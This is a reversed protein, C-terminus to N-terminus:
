ACLLQARELAEALMSLTKPWDQKNIEVKITTLNTYYAAETERQQMNLLTTNIKELTIDGIV